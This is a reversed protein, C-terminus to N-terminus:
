PAGAALLRDWLSQSLCRQDRTSMAGGDTTHVALVRGRAAREYRWSRGALTFTAVLGADDFTRAEVHGDDRDTRLESRLTRGDPGRTHTWRQANFLRGAGSQFTMSLPFGAADWTSRWETVPPEADHLPLRVTVVNVLRGHADFDARSESTAPSAENGAQFRNWHPGRDYARREWSGAVHRELLRGRADYVYRFAGNVNSTVVSRDGDRAWTLPTERDLTGDPPGCETFEGWETECVAVNDAGLFVVRGDTDYRWTKRDGQAPRHTLPHGREDFTFTACDPESTIAVLSNASGAADSWAWRPDGPTECRICLGYGPPCIRRPDCPDLSAARSTLAPPALPGGRARLSPSAASCGVLAHLSVVLAPVRRPM